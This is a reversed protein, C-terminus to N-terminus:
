TPDGGSNSDDNALLLDAFSLISSVKDSFNKLASTFSNGNGNKRNLLAPGHLTPNWKSLNEFAEDDLFAILDDINIAWLATYIALIDILGLGSGEGTIIEIIKLHELGKAGLEKRKNELEQIQEDYNTTRQLDTFGSTAFVGLSTDEKLQREAAFKKLKLNAIKIELESSPPGDKLIGGFEFGKTNAIPLFTISQYIKNLETKSKALMRILVKITKVFQTIVGIQTTSFNTIAEDVETKSVKNQEALAYCVFALDKININDPNDPTPSTTSKIINQLNSLFLPDPTTDKLRNRLIFEIGPRQLYVDPGASIRTDSKNYLFPFCIRNDQPMVCHVINPYLSYPKLLHVTSSISYGMTKSFAEKAADFTEALDPYKINLLNIYADRHEVEQTKPEVETLNFPKPFILATGYVATEMGQKEFFQSFSTSYSERIAMNNKDEQSISTDIKESDISYPDPTWGANYIGNQGVVPLGLMRYFAHTRSEEYYIPNVQIDKVGNEKANPPLNASSSKAISRIRDIPVIFKQYLANIDQEVNETDESEGQTTQEPLSM